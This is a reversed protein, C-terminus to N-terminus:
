RQFLAAITAPDLTEVRASPDVGLATATEMLNMASLKGRLAKRRQAFLDHTFQCFARLDGLPKLQDSSKRRIRVLASDISPPPWFAGPGITRLLEVDGLTQAIVGIPGYAKGAAPGAALRDGVEKQVTFALVEVGVLLLEVLLPSAINYPLNAVLKSRGASRIAEALPPALAHKGALADTELVVLRGAETAGAFTEPLAAALDRDIEVAVVKAGRGLLEGTLTGTGPGVELVVDGEAVEGADAIRRVLDPEIMFNQGFRHRPRSGARDLVARIQSKTQPGTPEPM